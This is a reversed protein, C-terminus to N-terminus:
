QGFSPADGQLYLTEAATSARGLVANRHPFRGFKQVIDRHLRAFYTFGEFTKQLAAPAQAHLAEFLRVSEEQEPLSEAHQLPMFYFAQEVLALGFPQRAQIGTQTLELAIPDQEFAAPTKRYVSRRFQDIVLILALREHPDAAWGNLQSSAAAEIEPMFQARIQEDVHPAGSFWIENNSALQQPDHVAAGFWFDLIRRARPNM